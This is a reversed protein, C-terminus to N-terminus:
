HRDGAAAVGLAVVAERSTHPFLFAEERVIAETQTGWRGSVCRVEAVKVM